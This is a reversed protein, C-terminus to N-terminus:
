FNFIKTAELQLQVMQPMTGIQGLLLKDVLGFYNLCTKCIIIQTGSEQLIQLLELITSTQCVLKVAESYLCISHVEIPKTVFSQLFNQLLLSNLEPTSNGIGLNSLLIVNM